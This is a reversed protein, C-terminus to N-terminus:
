VHSAMQQWFCQLQRRLCLIAVSLNPSKHFYGKTESQLGSTRVGILHTEGVAMLNEFIQSMKTKGPGFLQVVWFSIEPMPRRTTHLQIVRTQTGGGQLVEFGRGAARVTEQAM